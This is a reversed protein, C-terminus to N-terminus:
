ILFTEVMGIGDFQLADFLKLIIRHVEKTIRACRCISVEYLNNKWRDVSDEYYTEYSKASRLCLEGDVTPNGVGRSIISTKLLQAGHMRM